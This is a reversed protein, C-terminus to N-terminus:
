TQMRAHFLLAALASVMATLLLGILGYVIRKIPDFEEKTVYGDLEDSFDRQSTRMGDRVESVFGNLTVRLEAVATTINTVERATVFEANLRREMAGVQQQLSELLATLRALAAANSPENVTAAATYTAVM